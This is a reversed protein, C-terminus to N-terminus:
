TSPVPSPNYRSDPIRIKRNTDPPAPLIMAAAFIAFILGVNMVIFMLAARGSVGNQTSGRTLYVLVTTGAM